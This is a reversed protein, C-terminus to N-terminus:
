VKKNLLPIEQGVNNRGTQVIKKGLCLSADQFECSRCARLGDFQVAWCGAGVLHRPLKQHFKGLFAHHLVPLCPAPFNVNFEWNYSLIRHARERLLAWIMDEGGICFAVGRLYADPNDIGHQWVFDEYVKLGDAFDVERLDNMAHRWGGGLSACTWREITYDEGTWFELRFRKETGMVGFESVLLLWRTM